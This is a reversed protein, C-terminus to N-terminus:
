EDAKVPNRLVGIGSIDVEVTDGARIQAPIGPTGTFIMDGPEMTVSQSIFSIQTPVDYYLDSTNTYQVEKGNVRARLELNAPDLGTVIVPGAPSFTDASKGRWWQLDGRQWNRASVDNGCTYGLVYDLADEKSVKKCRKGIVAVLEAEEEVNEAGDPICIPEEPGVLSSPVKYFAEPVAPAEGGRLHSIYNRGIAIMKSPLCPALLKVESVPHTHDTVQYEEFPTTTIQHITEGEIVGYAIEGHAEFRAFITM